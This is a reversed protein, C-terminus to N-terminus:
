HYTWNTGNCFVPVTVAGTASVTANYTPSTAGNNVVAFMGTTGGTCSPLSAIAVPTLTMYNGLTWSAGLTDNAIPAAPRWQSYQITDDHTGASIAGAQLTLVSGACSAYTGLVHATQAVFNSTTPDSITDVVPTGVPTTAPPCNFVAVTTAGVAIDANLFNNFLSTNVWAMVSSSTTQNNLHIDGPLGGTLVVNGSDIMREQGLFDEGDHSGIQLGTQFVPVGSNYGLYNGLPYQVGAINWSNLYGNPQITYENNICSISFQFGYAGQANLGPIVNYCGGSGGIQIQDGIQVGGGTLNNSLKIHGSWVATITTNAPIVANTLDTITDGSKYVGSTPYVIINGSATASAATDIYRSQGTFNWTGIFGGSYITPSISGFFPMIFLSSAQELPNTGSNISVNGDTDNALCYGNTQGSVYTGIFVDAAIGCMGVIGMASTGNDVSVTEENFYSSGITGTEAIDALYNNAYINNMSSSVGTVNGRTLRGVLNGFYTNREDSSSNCGTEPIDGASCPMDLGFPWWAERGDHSDAQARKKLGTPLVWLKGPSGSSHAVHAPPSGIMSINRLVPQQIFTMNFTAGSGGSLGGGATWKASSSGPTGHLCEGATAV